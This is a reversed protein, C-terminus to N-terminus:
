LKNGEDFPIRGLAGIRPNTVSSEHPHRRAWPHVVWWVRFGIYQRLLDELVCRDRLMVNRVADGMRSGM